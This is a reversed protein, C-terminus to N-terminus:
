FLRVQTESPPNTDIGTITRLDDLTPTRGPWYQDILWALLLAAGTADWLARHPQSDRVTTRLTPSLGARDTLATLSRGGDMGAARALMLTDILGAPHLDPLRRHLLRWDVGINHGVIWRGTLMGTIHGAVQHLPPATRLVEHTLGPSIWPRQPIPRGPNILTVYASQQDPRGDRLPVAALELIAEQERDQGGSGELDLAVLPAEHWPTTM